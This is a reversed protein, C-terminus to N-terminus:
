VLCPDTYNYHYGKYISLTTTIQVVWNTFNMLPPIGFVSGKDGLRGTGDDALPLLPLLVPLSKLFFAASSFFPTSASMLPAINVKYSSAYWFCQTKNVENM